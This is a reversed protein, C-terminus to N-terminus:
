RQYTGVILARAITHQQATMYARAASADDELGLTDVDLAHVAFYYRHPRDGAPPLPGSYAHTGSDNRLHFAAGPLTIDSEGAGRPLETIAVDLDVILWHWWGSPTPADPDFCTVFFSQTEAPFDTWSLHPSENDGEASLNHDLPEQNTADHSILAFTPVAPLLDYPAPAVPRDLNM